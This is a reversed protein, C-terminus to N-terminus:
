SRAEPTTPTGGVQTLKLEILRRQPADVELRKLAREYSDRARDKQGVALHADGQVELMAPSESTGIVKLADAGKGADILLRALRENVIAALAPDEARITRLTAIADDRKNQALQAKAVALSGLTRYLGPELSQLKSQEALNGASIAEVATRYRLSAAAQEAAQRAQWWKWGFIAALGLLIGGILGAGNRRLWALVRESQEHEDLVDDLAM